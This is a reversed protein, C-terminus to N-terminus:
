VKVKDWYVVCIGDAGDIGPKGKGAPKIIEIHSGNPNGDAGYDTVRIAIGAEGGKGGKGGDGTGDLPKETGTRGYANGSALDTFSPSFVNGIASTHTGFKTETGFAGPTGFKDSKAGGTGIVVPYDTDPNVGVVGSWIKAGSGNKGDEGDRSPSFTTGTGTVGDEGPSSGQGGGVLILRISTVGAPVHFTGNSKIVATNEFLFSGDAQLMVSRCDKLVGETIAFEQEMVRGSKAESNSIWVTDVDGIESSPDGRSVTEMKIGGYQSLIQRAATNAQEQTHLFPNSISLTESSSTSNGSVVYTTDKGDYLKFILAALEDNARKTPYFTMATPELRNGQSWFPEATLDGTEQDARIWTGTAMAAFRAIAGCTLGSIDKVDRVTLPKSEFNPDVHWTNEFNVGLQASLASIWGGLTIPLVAPPMFERDALLGVIDSLQWTLTLDNSGTRWGGSAQYYVGVPQWDISGETEVGIYIKIKQREEISEFLSSKSYPEFRRDKNNITFNCTSYPSALCAFNGLMRIDISEIKDGQWEEYIGPIIEAIRIRRNPLSWKTVTIRIADPTQAIFSDLVVKTDTNGTFSQSYIDQNNFRVSVTFDVPIGDMPDQSFFVSCAQLISVNSMKMEAFVAPSFLGNKDCMNSGVFGVEGTLQQPNDPILRFSGDLLWRGAELTEYRPGMEMVKNHLQSPKSWPAQGSSEVAGYVIDPDEIDVVAKVFIRRRTATIAEKYAETTKIM